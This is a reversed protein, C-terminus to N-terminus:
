RPRKPMGSCSTENSATLATAVDGSRGRVGPTATRLRMPSRVRNKSDTAPTPKATNSTSTIAPMKTPVM